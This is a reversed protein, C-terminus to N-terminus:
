GGVFSDWHRMYNIFDNSLGNQRLYAETVPLSPSTHHPDNKVKEPFDTELIAARGIMVFDLGAELVGRVDNASMLKGSAGLKV